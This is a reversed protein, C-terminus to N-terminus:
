TSKLFIIVSVVEVVAGKRYLTVAWKTLFWGFLSVVSKLGSEVVQNWTWRLVWFFCRKICKETPGLVQCMQLKTRRPPHKKGLNRMYILLSFCISTWQLKCSKTSTSGNKIIKAINSQWHQIVDLKLCVAGFLRGKSTGVWKWRTRVQYQCTCIVCLEGSILNSPSPYWVTHPLWILEPVSDSICRLADHFLLGVRFTSKIWLCMCWFYCLSKCQLCSLPEVNLLRLSRLTM